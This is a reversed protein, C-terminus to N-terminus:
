AASDIRTVRIIGPVKKLKNMLKTLHGTDHLFLMITGEFLGDNSDINISRMNVKLENSIVKTVRNVVGVDDIGNIKIGALFAIESQNTWKAKVIRYAYNSM